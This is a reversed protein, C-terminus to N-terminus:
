KVLEWRYPEGWGLRTGQVITVYHDKQQIEFPRNLIEFVRNLEKLTKSFHDDSFPDEFPKM